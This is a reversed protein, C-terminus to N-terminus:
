TKSPKGSYENVALSAERQLWAEPRSSGRRKWIDCISQTTGGNVHPSYITILPSINSGFTSRGTSKGVSPGGSDWPFGVESTIPEEANQETNLGVAAEEFCGLYENNALASDQCGCGVLIIYVQM